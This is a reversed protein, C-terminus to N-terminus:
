PPETSSLASSLLDGHIRRGLAAPAEPDVAAAREGVEHAQPRVAGVDRVLEEGGVRQVGLVRGDAADAPQEAQRVARRDGAPCTASTRMPVVTPM